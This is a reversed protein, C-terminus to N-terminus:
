EEDDDINELIAAEKKKKAKNVLVFIIAGAVLLVLAASAAIIGKNDEVPIEEEMIFDEMPMPEMGEITYENEFVLLDGSPEEGVIKIVVNNPGANLPSFYAEYSMSDGQELNGLYTSGNQTDVDGEVLVKLNNLAVKGTNYIDFYVSIPMGIESMEPVFIESTEIKASQKVNIGLLETSTYENGAADEYEFNVKLTYTKPQASPVTYLRMIKEVTGKSSIEDFYFTNSSEVPTFINGTQTSETSTEESMTLFMKVNKVEKEAHTNLFEMTLDFEEGAMVIVPDSQYKSVIIKPKSAGDGDSNSVNVGAYQKISTENGGRNYTVSLEVAYNRSEANSTPAMTFSVNKSEGAALKEIYVVSSSKPVLNGGGGYEGVSVMLNEADATGNNVVNFSVNFNDNAGYVGGPESVNKIEIDAKTSSGTGVAIYYDFDKEYVKGSDDMYSMKINLPYNGNPVSDAAFVEFTVDEKIGPEIKMFSKSSLGRTSFVENGSDLSVTVNNMDIPGFNSLKFSMVTSDGAPVVDKSFTFNEFEYHTETFANQIRLYVTSTFDFFEGDINRCNFKVKVEHTKSEASRDVKVNLNMKKIANGSITVTSKSEEISITLPSNQVDVIEATTLVAYSTVSSANRVTLSIQQEEGANVDFMPGNIIVLNPSGAKEEEEGDDEPVFITSNIISDTRDTDAFVVMSSTIAMILAFLLILGKKFIKKM